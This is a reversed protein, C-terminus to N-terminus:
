QQEGRAKALAKDAIRLIPGVIPCEECEPSQYARTETVFEELAEYLEPAAAILHANAALKEESFDAMQCITYGSGVVRGCGELITEEMSPYDSEEREWPGPTFKNTM